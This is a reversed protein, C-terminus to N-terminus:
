HLRYWYPVFYVYEVNVGEGRFEDGMAEGRRRMLGKDGTAAVNVGAPFVSAYDTLRVGVPSDHFCIGAFNIRM